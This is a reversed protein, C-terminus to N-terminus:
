MCERGGESEMMLIYVKLVSFPPISKCGLTLTLPHPIGLVLTVFIHTV